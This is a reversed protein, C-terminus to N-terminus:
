GCRDSLFQIFLLLAGIGVVPVGIMVRVSFGAVIGLFVIILGTIKKFPDLIFTIAAIVVGLVMLLLVAIKMMKETLTYKFNNPIHLNRHSDVKLAQGLFGQYRPFSIFRLESGAYFHM